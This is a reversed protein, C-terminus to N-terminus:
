KHYVVARSHIAFHSFGTERTTKSVVSVLLSDSLRDVLGFRQLSSCCYTIVFDYPAVTYAFFFLVEWVTEGVAKIKSSCTV